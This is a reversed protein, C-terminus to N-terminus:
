GTFSGATVEVTNGPTISASPSIIIDAGSGSVGVTLANGITDGNADRLEALAATGSATATATLPVGLLTATRTAHSFSPLSLAFSALAGASTAPTGPTLSSTGIVLSAAGAADLSIGSAPTIALAGLSVKARSLATANQFWNHDHVNM